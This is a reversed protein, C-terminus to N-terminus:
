VAEDTEELFYLMRQCTPCVHIKDGKRIENFQQPPVTMFCGQCVGAIAQVVALGERKKLLMDYRKLRGANLAEALKKRKGAVTRRRTEIKKIKKTVAVTEDNLLEQEGSLLNELETAESKAQEAEEMLTLLLDESEKILRKNDEIEKLLAQHERSTQVQMMKNQRDKIREIADENEVEIDHKKQELIKTKDFCATIANEKESISQERNSIEQKQENIARDFGAIEADIKQLAILQNM